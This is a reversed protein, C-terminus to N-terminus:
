PFLGRLKKIEAVRSVGLMMAATRFSVNKETSLALVEDFAKTIMNRLRKMVTAEDWYFSQLNQVWEFYSVTVGGANALIGPLVLINKEDVIEDAENTLPGNAGEAIAKAKIRPANEKTIANEMGCPVLFDCELELLEANTIREVGEFGDFSHTKDYHAILKNIDIGNKNYIGTKSNSVALIKFGENYLYKASISGVNGFGQVVATSCSKKFREIKECTNFISYAVGAGTADTRGLSGGIIVPKGTVVGPIVRGYHSSYTDMIWAMTQPNTYMDPAPIDKDPGIMSLIETTYRRTLRELEGQSMQTPNCCIGGKAGGYPLNMLSCKWSMWMALASVEGLDVCPSYRIGGKSPGRAYDHQVRYGTFSKTQGNDLKIPLSVIMTKRPYKLREILGDDLNLLKGVKEVQEQATIFTPTMLENM